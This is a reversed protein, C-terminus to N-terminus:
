NEDLNDGQMVKRGSNIAEGVESFQHGYDDQSHVSEHGLMIQIHHPKVQLQKASYRKYFHRFNHVSLQGGRNSLGSRDVADKFAEQVASITTPEGLFNGSRDGVNIFLYPHHNESGLTRNFKLIQQFCEEFARAAHSNTWFVPHTSKEGSVITGKWGAFLRDQSALLPRPKLDYRTRLYAERTQSSDNIPGCYKSHIPHCRLVLLDGNPESQAESFFKTQFESPLVDCIWINLIESVRLGGFAALLFIGKYVPNKTAGIVQFVDEESPTGKFTKPKKMARSAIEPLKTKEEGRLNKWYERSGRLHALFDRGKEEKVTRLKKFPSDRVLIRIQESVGMEDSREGGDRRNNRRACFDIFKLIYVLDMRATQPSVSEWYLHEYRCRNENDLTGTIRTSILHLIFDEINEDASAYLRFYAGMFSLLNRISTMEKRLTQSSVRGVERWAFEVGEKLIQPFGSESCLYIVPLTRVARDREIPIEKLMAFFFDRKGKALIM